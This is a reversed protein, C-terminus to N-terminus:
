LGGGWRYQWVVGFLDFDSGTRTSVGTSLNLKVSQHLNVPLSLTLGARANSQLNRNQVGDTVTSGGRYRTADVAVWVGSDFSRILHAQFSYVPDQAQVHGGYFNHNTEYFNGAVAFELLWYQTAKSMGLELKSSWRNTGINVLRQPDYAGTPATLQISAGVVLKQRYERFRALPLAPAGLFNVGFRLRADSMGCTKRQVHEGEYDASGSLCARVLAADFKGSMGAIGLGRAYGVLPGDIQLKANELQISPDFLVSGDSIVYGAGLFSMGVPINAYQRPELDQAEVDQTCAAIVILAAFAYRSKMRRPLGMQPLSAENRESTGALDM